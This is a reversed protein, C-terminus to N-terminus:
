PLNIRAPPAMKSYDLESGLLSHPILFVVLLLISAALVWGRAPKGRRMMFLAILWGIMAVLTKNDTLDHGLPFGSWLLGFGYYQMLPGLIFGTIFFLVAAWKAYKRPDSKKDLAALGARTSFLLALLMILVHPILVYIPVDGRFRIVIPNEGSLSVSKEGKALIVRYALKGAMPQNPPFSAILTNDKRELPVKKWADETKYRKYELSGSIDSDPVDVSVKCDSTNVSSRPLEFKVLTADIEVKGKYPYTPGTLRQYVMTGAAIIFALFWLLFKKM